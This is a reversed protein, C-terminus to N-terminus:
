LFSTFLQFIFICFLLIYKFFDYAGSQACEVLISTTTHVIGIMMMAIRAVMVQRVILYLELRKNTNFQYAYAILNLTFIFKFSKFYIFVVLTFCAWALMRFGAGSFVPIEAISQAIAISFPNMWSTAFGIQTAVYTTLVTVKADYGLQQMIPLLVICFAIAEEGM